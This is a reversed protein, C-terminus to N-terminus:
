CHTQYIKRAKGSVIMRDQGQSLHTGKASKLPTRDILADLARTDPKAPAPYRSAYGYFGYKEELEWAVQAPSRKIGQELLFLRLADIDLQQDVGAEYKSAVYQETPTVADGENTTPGARYDVPLAPPNSASAHELQLAEEKQVKEAMVM